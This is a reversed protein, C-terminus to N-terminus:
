KQSERRRRVVIWTAMLVAIVLSFATAIPINLGVVTRSDLRVFELLTRGVAYFILYLATLEGSHVRDAYKTALRYLVIFSMLSWLSEYLFAPHFREVDVYAALRNEPSIRVAWPLNTPSGYLEQNFFNGWRGMMQGLALGIAALDAWILMPLRHRRTFWLLGLVGGIIGGYIGLGGNRINILQMPNRFYDLPSEIGFAAMSPSPTLVHYLRAGIVGLVLCIGVGSWVYDPNWQRWPPDDSIWLPDLGAAAALSGKMEKMQARNLGLLDPNFGWVLLLQGVNQVKRKALITKLEASLNLWALDKERIKVPVVQALIRVGRQHILHATVQAGMAVGFMIVIGYWYVPFDAGFLNLHLAARDPMWGTTLHALYIGGMIIWFLIIVLWHPEAQLWSRIKM